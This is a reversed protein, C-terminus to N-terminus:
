GRTRLHVGPALEQWVNWWDKREQWVGRKEMYRGHTFSYGDAHDVLLPTAVYAGGHQEWFDWWATDISYKRRSVRFITRNAWSQLSELDRRRVAYGYAGLAREIPGIGEALSVNLNFGNTREINWGGLLLFASSQPWHQWLRELDKRFMKEDFPIADDELFVCLKCGTREALNWARWHGFASAAGKAPKYETFVPEWPIGVDIWASEFAQLRGRQDPISLVFMRVSENRTIWKLDDMFSWLTHLTVVTLLAIGCLYIGISSPM